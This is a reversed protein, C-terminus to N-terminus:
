QFSSVPFLPPSLTHGTSQADVPKSTRAARASMRDRRSVAASQPRAPSHGPAPSYARRRPQLHLPMNYTRRIEAEHRSISRKLSLAPSERPAGREAARRATLSLSPPPSRPTPLLGQLSTRYVPLRTSLAEPCGRPESHLGVAMETIQREKSARKINASISTDLVKDIVMGPRIHMHMPPNMLPPYKRQSHPRLETFPSIGSTLISAETWAERRIQALIVDTATDLEAEEAAKKAQKHSPDDSDEGGGAEQTLKFLADYTNLHLFGDDFEGPPGHNSVPNSGLTHLKTTAQAATAQRQRRQRLQHYHDEHSKVLSDEADLWAVMRV